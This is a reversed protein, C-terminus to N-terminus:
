TVILEDDHKSPNIPGNGIHQKQKYMILKWFIQCFESALTLLYRGLGALTAMYRCVPNLLKGGGETIINIWSSWMDLTHRNWMWCVSIYSVSVFPSLCCLSFFLSLFLFLLSGHRIYRCLFYRSKDVVTYLGVDSESMFLKMHTKHILQIAM